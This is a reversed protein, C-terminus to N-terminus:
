ILESVSLVPGCGHGSPHRPPPRMSRAFPRALRGDQPRCAAPVGAVPLGPPLGAFHPRRSARPPRMDPEVHRAASARLRRMDPKVRGAAAAAPTYRPFSSRHHVFPPVPPPRTARASAPGPRRGPSARGPPPPPAAHRCSRRRAARCNPSPADLTRRQTRRNRSRPCTRGPLCPPQRGDCISGSRSRMKRMRAARGASVTRPNRSASAASPADNPVLVTCLKRLRWLRSRM